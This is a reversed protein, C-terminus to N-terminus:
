GCMTTHHNAFEGQLDILVLLSLGAESTQHKADVCCRLMAKELSILAARRRRESSRLSVIQSIILQHVPWTSLVEQLRSVDNM